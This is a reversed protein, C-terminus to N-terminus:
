PSSVTLDKRSPDATRDRTSSSSSAEEEVAEVRVHQGPHLQAGDRPRARWLEGDVFVLGEGRVEGPCRRRATRASRPRAVRAGAGGEHARLRLLLM